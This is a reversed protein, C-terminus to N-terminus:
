YWNKLTNIDTLNCNTAFLFRYKTSSTKIMLESARTKDQYSEDTAEMFQVLNFKKIESRTLAFNEPTETIIQEIEMQKYREFWTAYANMRDAMSSLFGKGQKKNEDSLNKMDQKQIEKLEKSFLAFILRQDTVIVTYYDRRLSFMSKKKSVNPLITIIKENKKNM